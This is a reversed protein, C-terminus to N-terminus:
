RQSREIIVGVNKVGKVAQGKDLKIRVWATNFDTLILAAIREVLTEILEFANDKAYAQVRQTIAQYDLADNLDDNKAAKAADIALEIDLVLTQTIAKEWEWVGITCECKLGHLYIIDM